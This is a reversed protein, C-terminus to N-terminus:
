PRRSILVQSVGFCRILPIRELLRALTRAAPAYRHVLRRKGGSINEFTQWVFHLEVIKFGAQRTLRHLDAPWYNRCWFRVLRRSLALPFWPLFPFRLGGLHRGSRRAHFGHTEIPYFRNPTFNVFTGGPKLVRYAEALAARDDPVHELVENMMVIDFSADPFPLKEADGWRVRDDNGNRAQWQAIKDRQYEIGQARAGALSLAEVFAGAGCGIDLVTHGQLDAFKRVIALRKALNLPAATDSGGVEVQVPDVQM